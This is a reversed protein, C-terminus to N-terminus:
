EKKWSRSPAQAHISWGGERSHLVPSGAKGTPARQEWVRLALAFRSLRLPQAVSLVKM